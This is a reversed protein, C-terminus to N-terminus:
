RDAAAALMKEPMKVQVHIGAPHANGPNPLEMRVMQTDSAADIKEFFIIKATKWDTDGDFKADLTQNMKLQAAQAAPLHMEVWLPDWQAIVVAGDKSQPDAMEGVNVAVKEIVGDFPAPIKMQDLKVRKQEAEYGKQKHETIALALQATTLNVADQAEEVESPSAVHDALMKLKREYVTTKYKQDAKSYEIKDNSQADLDTADFEAKAERSDQSALIQGKKVTDGDQVAVDAVLGPAAFALKSEKSPRTIASASVSPAASPEGAHSFQGLGAIALLASSAILITRRVTNTNKNM